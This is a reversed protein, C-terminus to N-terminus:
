RDNDEGKGLVVVALTANRDAHPLSSHWDGASRVGRRNVSLDFIWHVPLDTLLSVIAASHHLTSGTLGYYGFAEPALSSYFAARGAVVAESRGLAASCASLFDPNVKLRRLDNGHAALLDVATLVNRRQALEAANRQKRIAWGGAWMLCVMAVTALIHSTPLPLAHRLTADCALYLWFAATAAYVIGIGTGHDIRWRWRGVRLALLARPRNCFVGDPLGLSREIATARGVLEDYLQDNRMHYTMVGLVVVLGFISFHLPMGGGSRQGFSATAVSAVPLLGVLKFRIETLTRFLSHVERYEHQMAERRGKNM